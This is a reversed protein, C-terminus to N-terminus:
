SPAKWKFALPEPLIWLHRMNAVNVVDKDAPYVEVADLKGRGLERKVQQLEEWTIGEEWQSTGPKLTTRSISLRVIGGAEAFVQALFKRSLWVEILEPQHNAPWESKPLQTLVAPRKINDREMQRRQDRTIIANVMYHLASM